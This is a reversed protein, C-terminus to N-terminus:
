PSSEMLATLHVPPLEEDYRPVPVDVNEVADCLADWDALATLQNEYDDFRVAGWGGWVYSSVPPKTSVRNLISSLRGSARTSGRAM